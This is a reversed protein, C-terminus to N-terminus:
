DETEWHGASTSNQRHRALFAPMDLTKGIKKRQIADETLSNLNRKSLKTKVSPKSRGKKLSNRRGRVSKKLVTAM